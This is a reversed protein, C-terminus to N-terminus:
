VEIMHQLIERAYVSHKEEYEWKLSEIVSANKERQERLVQEMRRDADERIKALKERTQEELEADFRNREEQIEREIEHKRAEAQEVIAEATEEINSLKEIISDM